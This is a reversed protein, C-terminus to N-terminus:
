RIIVTMGPGSGTRVTLAGTGLLMKGVPSATSATYTRATREKGDYVLSGITMEGDYALHLTAGKAVTFACDPDATAAAEGYFWTTGATATYAELEYPGTFQVTGPGNFTVTGPGSFPTSFAINFNGSTELTVDGNVELDISERKMVFTSSKCYITGGNLVIRAMSRDYSTFSGKLNILGGNLVYTFMQGSTNRAFALNDDAILTGGDQIFDFTGTDDWNAGFSFNKGVKIEGSTLVYKGYGGFPRSMPVATWRKAINAPLQDLSYDIMAGNQHTEGRCNRVSGDESYATLVIAHGSVTCNENLVVLPTDGDGSCTVIRVGTVAGDFEASGHNVTLWYVDNSSDTLDVGDPASVAGNFVVTGFGTKTVKGGLVVDSDFVLTNDKQVDIVAGDAFTLAAGNITNTTGTAGGCSLATLTTPDSLTKVTGNPEGSLTGKGDAIWDAPKQVVITLKNFTYTGNPKDVGGIVLKEVTMQNAAKDNTIRKDDSLYVRKPSKQIQGRVYLSGSGNVVIEEPGNLTSTETLYVYHSDVTLRGTFEAKGAITLAHNGSTRLGGPGFITTDKGFDVTYFDGSRDIVTDGNVGTLCFKTTGNFNVSGATGSTNGTIPKLTVGGFYFGCDNPDLVGSADAKTMAEAVVNGRLIVTGGNLRYYNQNLVTHLGKCDLTGGSMEFSGGPYRSWSSSYSSNQNLRDNVTLKGGELYYTLKRLNYNHNGLYFSDFTVEGSRQHIEDFEIYGSPGCFFRSATWPASADIYFKSYGSEYGWLELFNYTPSDAQPYLGGSGEFYVSGDIAFPAYNGNAGPYSRKFRVAGGGGLGLATTQAVRVDADLVLEQGESVCIAMTYNTDSFNLRKDGTVTVPRGQATGLVALCGLSVPADPLEVTTARSLDVYTSPTADSWNAADSWSTGDGLGTWVRPVVVSANNGSNTFFASGSSSSVYRGVPQEVGGVTLKHALLFNRLTTTNIKGGDEIELDLPLALRSTIKELKLTAGGCIKVKWPDTVGSPNVITTDAKVTMTANSAIELGLGFTTLHHIFNMTCGPTFVFTSGPLVTSRSFDWQGNGETTTITFRGGWVIDVNNCPYFDKPWQFTGGTVKMRCGGEFKLVNASSDTNTETFKLLGGKLYAGFKDPDMTTCVEMKRVTVTGGEQVFVGDQKGGIYFIGTGDASTGSVTLSGGRITYTNGANRKGEVLISSRGLGFNGNLTISSEEGDQVIETAPSQNNSGTLIAKLVIKARDRVFVRVKRDTSETYLGFNIISNGSVDCDGDFYVDGYGLIYVNGVNTTLKGRFHLESGALVQPDVRNTGGNAKWNMKASLYLKAGAALRPGLTTASARSAIEFSSNGDDSLTVTYNAGINIAAIPTVAGTDLTVEANKNFAAVDDAGNPYGSGGWNAPDKWSGSAGGGTWTYNTAQLSLTGLLGLTMMLLRKM